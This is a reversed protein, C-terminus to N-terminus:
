VREAAMLYNVDIDRSMSWGASPNFSLGDVRLVRFGLEKLLRRLVAPPIFRGWDHTGPPVWRLVYEAGIKALLLSKLTRNITSLLMIGSTEVLYAASKLFEEPREVHEIVEMNLVVDFRQGEAAMQEATLCSYAISLDGKAAHATAARVNEEAADCGTVTFGLRALPEALLGGGCGLDLLSLGEFPRLSRTDRGFHTAAVNRVFELRVPNIKHLPAFPGGTDWWQGALRAFKAVESADVSSM